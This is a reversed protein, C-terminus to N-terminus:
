ACNLRSLELRQVVSFKQQTNLFIFSLLAPHPTYCSVLSCIFWTEVFQKLWVMWLWDTCVCVPSKNKYVYVVKKKKEYKNAHCCAGCIFSIRCRWQKKAIFVGVLVGTLLVVGALLWRNLAERTRRAGAAGGNGFVKAFCDQLWSSSFCFPPDTLVVYQQIREQCSLLLFCSCLQCFVTPIITIRQKNQKKISWVIEQDCLQFSNMGLM